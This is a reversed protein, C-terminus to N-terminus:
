IELKCTLTFVVRVYRLVYGGLRVIKLVEKAKKV